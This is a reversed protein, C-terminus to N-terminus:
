HVNLFGIDFSTSRGVQSVFRVVSVISYSRLFPHQLKDCLSESATAVSLQACHASSCLVWPHPSFSKLFTELAESVALPCVPSFVFSNALNNGHQQPKEEAPGHTSMVADPPSSAAQLSAVAATTRTGRSASCTDSWASHLSWSLQVTM